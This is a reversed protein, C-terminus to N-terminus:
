QCSRSVKCSTNQRMVVSLHLLKRDTITNRPFSPLFGPTFASLYSASSKFALGVGWFLFLPYFAFAKTLHRLPPFFTQLDYCATCTTEAGPPAIFLFSFTWALIALTALLIFRQCPLGIVLAPIRDREKIRHEIKQSNEM